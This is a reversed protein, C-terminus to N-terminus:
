RMMNKFVGNFSLFTHTDHIYQMFSLSLINNGRQLSFLLDLTSIMSQFWLELLFHCVPCNFITKIKRKLTRQINDHKETHSGVNSIQYLFGILYRKSEKKTGRKIMKREMCKRQSIFYENLWLITVSNSSM